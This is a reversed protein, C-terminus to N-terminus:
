RGQTQHEQPPPVRGARELEYRICQTNVLSRVYYVDMGRYLQRQCDILAKADAVEAPVLGAGSDLKEHLVQLPSLDMSLRYARSLEAWMEIWGSLAPAIEGYQGRYDLFIPVDDAASVEGAALEEFMRDIPDFVLRVEDLRPRNPGHLRRPRFTVPKAREAARRLARSM